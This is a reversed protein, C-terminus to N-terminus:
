KVSKGEEVNAINATVRDLAAKRRFAEAQVQFFRDKALYLEKQAAVLTLFPIKGSIYSAQAERVNAQIAPLTTKKFLEMVQVSEKLQEYAEQVQFNIQDELKKHEAKRQALKSQAEALAAYRRSRQSPLNMRLGLQYQMQKDMGQWFSDYAALAEYDPSFERRALQVAADDARIKDELSRLDPRNARAEERLQESNRKEFELSVEQASPPLSLEPDLHLLTNIRAQTVKRMRNLTISREKQLGIEVDAQLVDQQPVQGNRYRIEANQKFEGLLKLSDENVEMARDVLHFDFYANRADETLQLRVDEIDKETASAEAQAKDGRLKLKGRGPLKQAFEVRLAFNVQNSGITGPAFWGGVNPDELSIAQPYKSWAAESAAIMATLTPNRGLVERVLDDATLTKLNSFAPVKGPGEEVQDINKSETSGKPRTNKVVTSLENKEVPVVIPPLNDDVQPFLVCGPLALLSAFCLSKIAHSRIKM